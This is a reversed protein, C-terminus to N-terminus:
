MGRGINASPSPANKVAIVPVHENAIDQSPDDSSPKNEKEKADLTIQIVRELTFLEEKVKKLENEKLWVGESMSKIIPIDASLEVNESEYKSATPM